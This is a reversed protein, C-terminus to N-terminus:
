RRVGQEAVEYVVEHVQDRETQGTDNGEVRITHLVANPVNVQSRPSQSVQTSDDLAVAGTTSNTGNELDTVNIPDDIDYSYAKMAARTRRGTVRMAKMVKSRLEDGSDAVPAVLYWSNGLGSDFRATQIGSAAAGTVTGAASWQLPPLTWIAGECTANTEVTFNDFLAYAAADIVGEGCQLGHQTGNASDFRSPGTTVRLEGNLYGQVLNGCCRVEIIDGNQIQTSGPFGENTCASGGHYIECIRLFRGARSWTAVWYNNSDVWRFVIGFNNNNLDGGFSANNITVKAVFNSLGSEVLAYGGDGVSPVGGALRAAQDSLIGWRIDGPTWTSNYPVWVQGTTATGLSTANDVRNFDDFVIVPM